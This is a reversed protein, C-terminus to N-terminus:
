SLKNTCFFYGSCFHEWCMKHRHRIYICVGVQNHLVLISSCRVHILLNLLLHQLLNLIVQNHPVFISTCRVHVGNTICSSSCLHTHKQLALSRCICLLAHWCSTFHHLLLLPPTHAEAVGLESLHMDSDHQLYAKSNMKSIMKSREDGNFYLM